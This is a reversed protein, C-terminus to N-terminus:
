WMAILSSYIRSVIVLIQVVTRELFHKLRVRTSTCNAKKSKLWHRRTAQNQKYTQWYRQLVLLIGQCLALTLVVKVRIYITISTRYNQTIRTVCLPVLQPPCPAIVRRSKKLTKKWYPQFFYVIEGGQNQFIVKITVENLFFHFNVM